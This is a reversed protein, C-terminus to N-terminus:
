AIRSFLRFSYSKECKELSSMKLITLYVIPINLFVQFFNNLVLFLRLLINTLPLLQKKSQKLLKSIQCWFHLLLIQFIPPCTNTHKRCVQNKLPVKLYYTVYRPLFFSPCDVTRRFQCVRATPQGIKSGHLTYSKEECRLWFHWIETESGPPFLASAARHSSFM